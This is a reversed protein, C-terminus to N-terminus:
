NFRSTLIINGLEIKDDFTVEKPAINQCNEFDLHRYWKKHIEYKKLMDEKIYENGYFDALYLIDLDPDLDLKKYDMDASSNKSFTIAINYKLHPFKTFLKMLKYRTPIKYTFTYFVDYKKILHEDFFGFAVRNSLALSCIHPDFKEHNLLIYNCLLFNYKIDEKTFNPFPIFFNNKYIIYELSSNNTYYLDNAYTRMEADLVYGDEKKLNFSSDCFGVYPDFEGLDYSINFNEFDHEYLCRHSLVKLLEKKKNFECLEIVDTWKHLYSLVILSFNISNNKNVLKLCTRKHPSKPYWFNLPPNELIYEMNKDVDNNM